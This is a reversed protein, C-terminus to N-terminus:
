FGQSATSELLTDRAVILLETIRPNVPGFASIRIGDTTSCTLVNRVVDRSLASGDEVRATRRAPTLSAKKAGLEDLMRPRVSLM